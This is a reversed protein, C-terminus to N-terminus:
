SNEGTNNSNGTNNGSGNYKKYGNRNYHKKNNNKFQSKNKWRNNQIEMRKRVKENLKDCDVMAHEDSQCVICWHSKSCKRCNNFIAKHWCINSASSYDNITVHSRGATIHKNQRYLREILDRSSSSKLIINSLDKFASKPGCNLIWQVTHKYLSNAATKNMNVEDIHQHILLLIVLPDKVNLQTIVKVKNKHIDWESATLISEAFDTSTIARNALTAFYDSGALKTSYLDSSKKNKHVTAMLSFNDENSAPRNQMDDPVDDSIEDDDDSSIIQNEQIHSIM